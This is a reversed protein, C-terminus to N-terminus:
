TQRAIQLNKFWICKHSTCIFQPQNKQQKFTESRKAADKKKEPKRDGERQAKKREEDTIMSYRHSRKDHEMLKKNIDVKFIGGEKVIGKYVFIQAM